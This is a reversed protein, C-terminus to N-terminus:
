SIQKDFGFEPSKFSPLVDEAGSRFSPQLLSSSSSGLVTIMGWAQDRQAPTSVISDTSNSLHGCCIAFKSFAQICAYVFEILTAAKSETM